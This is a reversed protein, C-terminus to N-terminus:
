QHEEEEATAEETAQPQLYLLQFRQCLLGQQKLSLAIWLKRAGKAVELGPFNEKGKGKKQGTYDFACLCGFKTKKGKEIVNKRLVWELMIVGNIQSLKLTASM